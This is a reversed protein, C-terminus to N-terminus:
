EERREIATEIDDITEVGYVAIRWKRRALHPHKLIYERLSNRVHFSLENEPLDDLIPCLDDDDWFHRKKKVFDGGELVAYLGKLNTRPYIAGLDLYNPECPAKQPHAM